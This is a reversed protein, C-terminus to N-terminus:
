VRLTRSATPGHKRPGRGNPRGLTDLERDDAEGPVAVWRLFRLPLDLDEEDIIIALLAIERDIWAERAGGVDDVDLGPVSEQAVLDRAADARAMSELMADSTTAAAPATSSWLRTSYFPVTRQMGRAGALAHLDRWMDAESAYRMRQGVVSVGDDWECLRSGDDLDIIEVPVRDHAGRGYARELLSADLMRRLRVAVPRTCTHLRTNESDTATPM